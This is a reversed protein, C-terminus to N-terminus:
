KFLPALIEKSIKTSEDGFLLLEETDQFFVEGPDPYMQPPIGERPIDKRVGPSGNSKSFVSQGEKTLLWNVFIKSANPHPTKDPNSLGGQGLGVKGGEKVKCFAVPAAVNIFEVASELATAISLPYKGRAVWEVQLRRDRTIVPEQKVLQRLFDKAGDVGWLNLALMSIFANGAGTVRPDNMVIKGKWKPNLLDRYTTIDNAQVLNTNRLVYRQFTALLMMSTHDKDVWPLGTTIWAKPDTAEPLMLVADLKGLLGRPKMVTLSTIAGSIIADATRIGATKEAQMRQTLEEGRGVIWEVKIGYKEEFAKALPRIVDNSPTSYLMMKGEKKAAELTKDWEAKWSGKVIKSSLKSESPSVSTGAYVTFPKCLAALTILAMIAVARLTFKRM